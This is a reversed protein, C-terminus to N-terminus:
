TSRCRRISGHRGLLARHADLDFVALLSVVLRAGGTQRGLQLGFETDLALQDGGTAADELDREVVLQDEGLLREAAEGLLALHRAQDAFAILPIGRAILQNSREILKRSGATGL